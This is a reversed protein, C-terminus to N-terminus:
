DIPWRASVNWSKMPGVFDHLYSWIEESESLCESFCSYNSTFLIVWQLTWSEDIGIKTWNREINPQWWIKRWSNWCSAGRRWLSSLRHLQHQGMSIITFQQLHKAMFRRLHLWGHPLIHLPNFHLRFPGTLYAQRIWTWPGISPFGSEHLPRNHIFAVFLYFGLPLLAWARSPNRFICANIFIKM